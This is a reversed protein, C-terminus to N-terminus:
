CKDFFLSVQWVSVEFLRKTKEDLKGFLVKTEDEDEWSLSSSSIDEDFREDEEEEENDDNDEEEDEGTDSEKAQKDAMKKGEMDKKTLKSKKSGPPQEEQSYLMLSLVKMM